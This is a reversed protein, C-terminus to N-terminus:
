SKNKYNIEIELKKFLCIGDNRMDFLLNNNSYEKITNKISFFRELEGKWSAINTRVWYARGEEFFSFVIERVGASQKTISHTDVFFLELESPFEKKANLIQLALQVSPCSCPIPPFYVKYTDKIVHPCEGLGVNIKPLTTNTYFPEFSFFVGEEDIACNTCDSVLAIPERQCYRVFVGNPPLPLVSFSKFISLLSCKKSKELFAYDYLNCPANKSLGLLESLFLGSLHPNQKEQAIQVIEFNADCQRKKQVYGVLFFWTYASGSVLVCSILIIWLARALPIKKEDNKM